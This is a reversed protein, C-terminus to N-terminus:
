KVTITGKMQPHITCIYKYIGPKRFKFSFMDNQDLAPSRFLGDLSVVLHPEADFNKWTVISGSSVTLSMPSYMFNKIVVLNATDGFAPTTLIACFALLCTKLINKTM